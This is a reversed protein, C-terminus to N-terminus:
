RRSLPSATRGDNGTTTRVGKIGEGRQTRGGKIGEGKRPPPVDGRPRDGGAGKPLPSVGDTRREGRILGGGKSGRERRSLPFATRGDNGESSDEGRQDGRGEPSPFSLEDTTGGRWM